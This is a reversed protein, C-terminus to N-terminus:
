GTPREAEPPPSHPAPQPSKALGLGSALWVLGLGGILVDRVRILLALSAGFAPPYGLAAISFVLAAEVAGLGGPSPALFALRSLTLVAIAQPFDLALGLFRLALWMELSAIGWNLMALLITVLLALPQRHCFLAIRTESDYVIQLATQIAPRQRWPLFLRRALATLPFFGSVLALLHGAPVVLLGLVVPLLPLNTAAGFLGGTLILVVGFLLYLLNILLDFLRDLSVSAVASAADLGHNRTLALVQLPEGGFQPGPTFYSVAFGALRYRFIRWFGVRYGQARVLWYWRLSTNLLIALNLLALALWQWAQFRGLASLVDAPHIERLAWALLGIALLWFFWTKRWGPLKM